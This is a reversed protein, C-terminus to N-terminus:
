VVDLLALGALVVGIGLLVPTAGELLSTQGLGSGGMSPIENYPIPPPPPKPAVTATPGLTLGASIIDQPSFPGQPKATPGSATPPLCNPPQGIWGPPCGQPRSPEPPRKGQETPTPPLLPLKVPLGHPYHGAPALVKQIFGPVVRARAVDDLKATLTAIHSSKARVEEWIRDALARYTDRAQFASDRAKQDQAHVGEQEANRVRDRLANYEDKIPKLEQKLRGIENDLRDVEAKRDEWSETTQGLWPSRELFITRM